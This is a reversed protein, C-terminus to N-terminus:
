LPCSMVSQQACMHVISLHAMKEQLYKAQRTLCYYYQVLIISEYESNGCEAPESRFRPSGGIMYRSYLAM